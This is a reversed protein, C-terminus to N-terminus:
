GSFRSFHLRPAASSSSTQGLSKELKPAGPEGGRTNQSPLRRGLSSKAGRDAANEANKRKKGNKDPTNTLNM